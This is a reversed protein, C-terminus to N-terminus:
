FQLSKYSVEYTFNVHSSFTLFGRDGIRSGRDEIRSGRDEIRSGRNEIRSGRDENELFGITRDIEDDVEFLKM